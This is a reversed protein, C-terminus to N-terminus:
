QPVSGGSVSGHVDSLQYTGLLKSSEMKGDWLVCIFTYFIYIHM